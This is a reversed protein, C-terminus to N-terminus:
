TPSSVSNHFSAFSVSPNDLALEDIRVNGLHPTRTEDLALKAGQNWGEVFLGRDLLNTWPRFQTIYQTDQICALTQANRLSHMRNEGLLGILNECLYPKTAYLTDIRQAVRCLEWLTKHVLPFSLLLWYISCFLRCIGSQINSHLSRMHACFGSVEYNGSQDQSPHLTDARGAGHHGHGNSIMIPSPHVVWSNGCPHSLVIRTRGDSWSCAIAM